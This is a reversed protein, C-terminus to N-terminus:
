TGARCVREEEDMAADAAGLADPITEYAWVARREAKLVRCKIDLLFVHKSGRYESRLYFDSSVSDSGSTVTNMSVFQLRVKEVDGSSNQDRYELLATTIHRFMMELEYLLIRAPVLGGGNPLLQGHPRVSPRALAFQQSSFLEDMQEPRHRETLDKYAQSGPEVALWDVQDVACEVFLTPRRAADPPNWSHHRLLFAVTPEVRESLLLDAVKERRLAGEVRAGRLASEDLALALRRM